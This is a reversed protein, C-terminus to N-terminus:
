VKQSDFYQRMRSISSTPDFQILPVDLWSVSRRPVCTFGSSLM